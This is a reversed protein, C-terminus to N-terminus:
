ALAALTPLPHDKSSHIEDQLLALKAPDAELLRLLKSIARSPLVDGHEYKHFANPGGGLIQSAARQSLKLKERIARIRAPELLGEARAKLLNLGRDSVVMDKGTHTSEGCPCYWGPMEVTISAGRYELPM